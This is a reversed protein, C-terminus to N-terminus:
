ANAFRPRSGNGRGQTRSRGSDPASVLDALGLEDIRFGTCVRCADLRHASVCHRMQQIPTHDSVAAAEIEPRDGHPTGTQKMM